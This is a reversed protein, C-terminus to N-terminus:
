SPFWDWNQLAHPLYTFFLVMHPHFDTETLLLGLCHCHHVLWQWRIRSEHCRLATIKWTVQVYFCHLTAHGHRLGSRMGWASEQKGSSDAKRGMGIHWSLWRLCCCAILWLTSFALPLCSYMVVLHSQDNCYILILVWCRETHSLCLGGYRLLHSDFILHHGDTWWMWTATAPPKHWGSTEKADSIVLTGHAFFKIIWAVLCLLLLQSFCFSLFRVFESTIMPSNWELGM